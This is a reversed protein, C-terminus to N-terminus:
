SIGRMIHTKSSKPDSFTRARYRVVSNPPIPGVEHRLRRINGRMRDPYDMKAEYPKNHIISLQGPTEYVPAVSEIYRDCDIYENYKAVPKAEDTLDKIQNHKPWQYHKLEWLYNACNKFVYQQPAFYIQKTQPDERRVIRYLDKVRAIGPLLYDKKQANQPFVSEGEQQLVKILEDRQNAKFMLDKQNLSTDAISRVLRAGNRTLERRKEVIQHAFEQIGAACSLEDVVYRRGQLDIAKWLAANPKAPHPDIGEYISYNHDLTFPDILSFEKEFTDIVLGRLKMFRGKIRVEREEQTLEAEFIALADKALHYNDHSDGSICKVYPKTGDQGPEWLDDYMWAESLPTATIWLHGGRDILGRLNAVYLPRPPPEDFAVFDWDSGEAKKDRQDYTGFRIISGNAFNIGTLNGLQNYVFPKKRSLFQRPLWTEFKIRLVEDILGFSEAYMKGRVPLPIKIAPHIGLCIKIADVASATTKGWRNGTIVIRITHNSNHFEVQGPHPDYLDLKSEDCAFEQETLIQALAALEGQSLVSINLDAM